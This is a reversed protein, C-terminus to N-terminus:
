TNDLTIPIVTYNNLYVCEENGVNVSFMVASNYTSDWVGSMTISKTSSGNQIVAKNHITEISAPNTSSNIYSLRNAAYCRIADAGYLRSGCHLGGIWTNGNKYSFAQFGKTITSSGDVTTVSLPFAEAYDGFVLYLANENSVIQYKWCRETQTSYSINSSNSIFKLAHLMQFSSSSQLEFQGVDVYVEYYNVSENLAKFREFHIKVNTDIILWINPKNTTSNFVTGLATEVEASTSVITSQGEDNSAGIKCVLTHYSTFASEGLVSKVLESIFQQETGYKSIVVNNMPM